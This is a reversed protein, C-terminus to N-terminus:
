SHILVSLCFVKLPDSLTHERSRQEEKLSNQEEEEYGVGGGGKEM